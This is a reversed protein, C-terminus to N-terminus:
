FAQSTHTHTSLPWPFPLSRFVHWTYLIGPLVYRMTDLREEARVGMCWKWCGDGWDEGSWAHGEPHTMPEPQPWYILLYTNACPSVARSTGDGRNKSTRRSVWCGWGEELLIHKSVWLPSSLRGMIWFSVSNVIKLTTNTVNAFLEFPREVSTRLFCRLPDVKRTVAMFCSISASFTLFNFFFFRNWWYLTLLQFYRIDVGCARELLQYPM